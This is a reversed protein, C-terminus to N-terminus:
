LTDGEQVVYRFRVRGQQREHYDFFADSGVPLITVEDPTLVLAHDLAVEAPAFIQLLLGPPLTATPDLQNWTRLEDQTIRFFRAIETLSDGSSTRFFVRRRDPYRFDGDPVAAIVAEDGGRAPRPRVAPVLLATGPGVEE